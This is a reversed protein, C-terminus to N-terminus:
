RARNGGRYGNLLKELGTAYGSLQELSEAYLRKVEAPPLGAKLHRISLQPRQAVPPPTCPVAVPVEVTEPLTCCGSLLVTLALVLRKM